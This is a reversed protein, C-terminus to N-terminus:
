SDGIAEDVMDHMFRASEIDCGELGMVAVHVLIKAIAAREPRGLSEGSKRCYSSIADAIASGLDKSHAQVFSEMMGSETMAVILSYPKVELDMTDNM